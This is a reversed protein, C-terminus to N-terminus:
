TAIKSYEISDNKAEDLIEIIKTLDNKNIHPGVPLSLIHDSIRKCKNIFKVKDVLYPMDSIMRPYHVMTPIKSDEFLKQINSRSKWLTVYQHYVCNKTFVITNSHSSYFSANIRRTENMKRYYKLKETLFCSQWEDMRSNFGWSDIKGSSSDLGYFRAKKLAVAWEENDTLIAGGDGRCGLPKTPYFSHISIDSLKHNPIGTSQACDEVVYSNSEDARQRIYNMDCENGFLNVPVIISNKPIIIDKIDICLSADVPVAMIEKAGSQIAAMVTPYAGFQPIIITRNNSGLIKFAISLADTANKVGICYKRDQDISFLKEFKELFEGLLYKGSSEITKFNEESNKKAFFNEFELDVFKM